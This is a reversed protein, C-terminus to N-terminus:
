VLSVDHNALEVSLWMLINPVWIMVLYECFVSATVTGFLWFRAGSTRTASTLLYCVLLTLLYYLISYFGSFEGLIMQRLSTLQEFVDGILVRQERTTEKFSYLFRNIEESSNTLVSSLNAANQLLIKQNSLTENQHKMMETQLHFSKSLQDAVHLSNEALRSITSETAENWIQVQLFYCINQTHTFFTTYSGRDVDSMEQTCIELSIDETCTYGQRGQLNLFCNLYALSLRGQMDDSLQKCGSQMFLMANKWCQGYKPLESKLKIVEFQRKGEEFTSVDINPQPPIHSATFAFYFYFCVYNFPFM